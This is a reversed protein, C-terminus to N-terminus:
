ICSLVKLRETDGQLQKCVLREDAGNKVLLKSVETRGGSVSFYLPTYGNDTKANVDAGRDILSSVISYYGNASAIHMFTTNNKNVYDFLEINENILKKALDEKKWILAEFIKENTSIDLTEIDPSFDVLEQQKVFSLKVSSNEISYDPVILVEGKTCSRDTCGRSDFITGGCPDILGKSGVFELKCGSVPSIAFAVFVAPELSRTPINIISKQGKYLLNAIKIGFRKQLDAYDIEISDVSVPLEAIAKMQSASRKLIVFPLGGVYIFRVESQALEVENTSAYTNSNCGTLLFVIFTFILRLKQTM